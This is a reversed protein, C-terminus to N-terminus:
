VNMVNPANKEKDRSGAEKERDAQGFVTVEQLSKGSPNMGLQVKQVEGAKLSVHRRVETYGVTTVILEYEGAPINRLEFNGKADAAQHYSTKDLSVYAGSLGDRSVLDFVNGRITGSQAFGKQLSLLLFIFLAFKRILM